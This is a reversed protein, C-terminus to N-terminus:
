VAPVVQGEEDDEILALSQSEIMQWYIGRKSILENHNGMEAIRGHDVLLITDARRVTSLRHAIVIMTKLGSLSRLQRQITRETLADLASTAEDLIMLDPDRLFVRALAIRQRQGGSLRSGRDGLVTDYGEALTDIWEDVAALRAASQLQEASVQRRLGFCLNARISDAMVIIDQTVVGLRQWWSSVKLDNLDVGDVSIRGSDPRYLRTVLNIITSKGAGSAGVIAVTKGKPIVFSLGQLVRPGNDTYSFSVDEFRIEKSFGDVAVTGDPDRAQEAKALYADFERFADLHIIINNRAINIISLPALIRFMLVFFIVLVGVAQGATETRLVGVLMVIVCILIGGVTSFFPVTMNEVAATKDRARGLRKLSNQLDGEIDSTAGALRILRGGYLTEYFLQGFRINAQTVEHGVSHVLKTTLRRFILSALAVYVAAAIFLKLSVITLIVVYSFLVALNAVLMAFFRLAIGIRGPQNTTINAIEGAGVSDVFKMSTNVFASFARYRLHFDIRHPISYGVFEQSFQLVGRLLVVILMLGGAWLLRRDVPLEEFLKSMPGLLPVSAFPNTKGMTQLLPVMLFVGFSETLTGFVALGVYLSLMGIHGSGYRRFLAFVDRYQRLKRLVKARLGTSGARRSRSM